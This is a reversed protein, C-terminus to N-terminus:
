EINYREVPVYVSNDVGLSEILRNAVSAVSRVGPGADIAVAAGIILAASRRQPNLTLGGGGIKGDSCVSGMEFSARYRIADFTELAMQHWDTKGIDTMIVGVGGGLNCPPRQGSNGSGPIAARGGAGISITVSIKAAAIGEIDRDPCAVILVIASRAMIDTCVGFRQAVAVFIM